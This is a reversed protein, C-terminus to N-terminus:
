DSERFLEAFRNDPQQSYARHWRMLYQLDRKGEAFVAREGLRWGQVVLDRQAKSTAALNWGHSELYAACAKIYADTWTDANAAGFRGFDDRYFRIFTAPHMQLLGCACDGDGWKYPEEGTEIIAFARVEAAYESAEAYSIM